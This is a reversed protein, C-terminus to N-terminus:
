LLPLCMVGLGGKGVNEVGWVESGITLHQGDTILEGWQCSFHALCDRAAGM